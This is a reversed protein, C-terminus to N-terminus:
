LRTLSRHFYNAGLKKSDPWETKAAAGASSHSSARNCEAKSPCGTAQASGTFSLAIAFTGARVM